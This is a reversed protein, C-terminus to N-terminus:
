LITLGDFVSNDDDHVYFANVGGLIDDLYATDLKTGAVVGAAILTAFAPQTTTDFEINLTPGVPTGTPTGDSTGAVNFSIQIRDVVAGSLRVDVTYREGQGGDPQSFFAGASDLAPTAVDMFVLKDEGIKFDKVTSGGDTNESLNNANTSAFRHIVIDEGDGLTITDRGHGGIVLDGGGGTTITDNNNGGQLTERATTGSITDSGGTATGFAPHLTISLDEPPAPVRATPTAATVTEMGSNAFANSTNGSGAVHGAAAEAYSVRLGIM